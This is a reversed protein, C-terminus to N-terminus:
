LDIFPNSIGLRLDNVVMYTLSVVSNSEITTLEPFDKITDKITNKTSSFTM